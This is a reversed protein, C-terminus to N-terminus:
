RTLTLSLDQNNISILLTPCFPLLLTCVACTHTHTHTPQICYDDDDDDDDGSALGSSQIQTTQDSVTKHKVSIFQQTTEECRGGRKFFPSGSSSSSSPLFVLQFHSLKLSTENKPFFFSSLLLFNKREKKSRKCRM